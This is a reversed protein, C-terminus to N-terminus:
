KGYNIRSLMEDVIREPSKKMVYIIHCSTDKIVPELELYNKKVKEFLKQEDLDKIQNREKEREYLFDISKMSDKYPLFGFVLSNEVISKINKECIGLKNGWASNIAGGPLDFVLNNKTMSELIVDYSTNIILKVEKNEIVKKLGGYQKLKENMLYDSEIYEYELIEALLKSTTSKGVSRPGVITINM